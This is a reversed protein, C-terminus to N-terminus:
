KDDEDVEAVLWRYSNLAYIAEEMDEDYDEGELILDYEEGRKDVYVDVGKGLMAMELPNLWEELTTGNYLVLGTDVKQVGKVKLLEELTKLQVTTVYNM